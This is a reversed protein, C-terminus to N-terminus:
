GEVVQYALIGQIIVPRFLTDGFRYVDVGNAKEQTYGDPLYFVQTGASPRIVEFAGGKQGFFTGFLYWAAGQGSAVRTVGVPLKDIVAGVPATVVTYQSGQQLWFIGRDYLYRRGGVEIVAAGAAPAEASTFGPKRYYIGSPEKLAALSTELIQDFYAEHEKLDEQETKEIEDRRKQRGAERGAEEASSISEHQTELRTWDTNGWGDWGSWDDWGSWGDSSTEQHRADEDRGREDRAGADGPRSLLTVICAAGLLTTVIFRNNAKM